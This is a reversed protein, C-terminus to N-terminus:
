MGRRRKIESKMREYEIEWVRTGEQVHRLKARVEADLKQDQAEEERLFGRIRKKIEHDEAFVEEVSSSQMLMELLQGLLYDMGDDGVKIGAQEAALEKIRSFEGQPLGRQHVLDRARSLVQDVQGLYSTMVSEFDREVDRQSSVEIDGADVLAKVMQRSLQPIQGRQLRM